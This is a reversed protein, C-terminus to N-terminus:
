AVEVNEPSTPLATVANLDGPPEDRNPEVTRRDMFWAVLAVGIGVFLVVLSAARLNHLVQDYAAGGAQRGEPQSFLDLYPSRGAQLGVLVAVMGAAVGLATRFTCRWRRRGLAIGGGLAVLTLVPLVWALQQLLDVMDQVTGLWPWQFLAVTTNVQGPPVQSVDVGRSSLADRVQHAIDTLDLEVTGDNHLHLTGTDGTLAAVLQPQMRRNARAWLEAFQPSSVVKLAIAHVRSQVEGEVGSARAAVQPPLKSKLQDVITNSQMIRKTVRTAIADRVDQNTALPAVTSVYSDTDLLTTKAWVTLVSIPALVCGIVILVASCIARAKGADRGGGGHQGQSTDTM